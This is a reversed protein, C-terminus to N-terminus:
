ALDTLVKGHGGAAIGALRRSNWIRYALVALAAAVVAAGAAILAMEWGPMGAAVFMIRRPFTEQGKPGDAPGGTPLVSAMAATSVPTLPALAAVLAALFATPKRWRRSLRDRTKSM